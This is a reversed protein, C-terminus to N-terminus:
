KANKTIEALKMMANATFLQCNIWFNEYGYVCNEGMLFTPIQGTEANQARTIKDALTMAKELYLRDGTLKYMNSFATFIGATSSDIPCYCFYQELGAPYHWELDAKWNKNWAPHEGWVVFQDEVFRMLDVAIGVSKEDDSLNKTIYEILFDAHFHTLNKYPRSVPVDEFQGEWKYEPLCKGIIYKFNDTELKHWREDKTKQYLMSFFNVFKFDVCVNDTLPKGTACDYVLYWSGSPLVNNEYWKAIDLAANLYKDNGTQEYLTLYAMGAEAPYIMMTTGVCNKAAPAVKNVAEANLDKFSYTPPLFALPHSEDFSISLLYDAARCALKLANEACSPELKAYDAVARIISGITKAPYVNHPYDAMPKGYKLWHQVMEENYIYRYAKLACERYSVAKPPYANRGLFPTSKYFSRAGAIHEPKGDAGLSEVKLHVVGVPIDKWIPELSSTPKEAIFAHAKGNKDEATFLYGKACRVDPFDFAPVFTFQTSYANWFPRNDVGGLHAATKESNYELLAQEAYKDM